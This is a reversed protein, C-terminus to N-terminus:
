EGIESISMLAWVKSNAPIGPVNNRIEEGLKGIDDLRLDDLWLEYTGNEYKLVDDVKWDGLRPLVKIPKSKNGTFLPNDVLVKTPKPLALLTGGWIGCSIIVGGAIIFVDGHEKVYNWAKKFKNKM